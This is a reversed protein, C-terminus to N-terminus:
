SKLLYKFIEYELQHYECHADADKVRLENGVDFLTSISDLKKKNTCCGASYSKCNRCMPKIKLKGELKGLECTCGKDTTYTEQVGRRHGYFDWGDDTVEQYTRKKGCYLCTVSVTTEHKM